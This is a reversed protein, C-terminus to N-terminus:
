EQENRFCDLQSRDSGRELDLWIYLIFLFSSDTGANQKAMCGFM